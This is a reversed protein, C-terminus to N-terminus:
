QRTPTTISVPMHRELGRVEHETGELYMFALEYQQGSGDAFRAIGRKIRDRWSLRWKRCVSGNLTITAKYTESDKLTQGSSKQLQGRVEAKVDALLDGSVKAEILSMNEFEVQREVTRSRELTVTAGPDVYQMTPSSPVIAESIDLIEVLGKASRPLIQAAAAHSRRFLKDDDLRVRVYRTSTIAPFQLAGVNKPRTLQVLLESSSVVQLKAPAEIHPKGAGQGITAVGEYSDGSVLRLDKIIVGGTRLTGDLIYILGREVRVRGQSTFAGQTDAGWEYVGDIPLANSQKFTDRPPLGIDAKQCSVGLMAVLVTLIVGRWTHTRKM